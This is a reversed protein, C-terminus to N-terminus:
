TGERSAEVVLLDDVPHLVVQEYGCRHLIGPWEGVSPARFTVFGHVWFAPLGVLYDICVLRGEPKLVRRVAKLAEEQDDLHHVVYRAVAYDFRGLGEATAIDGAEFSVGRAEGERAMTRAKGIREANKDVGVVDFGAEALKFALYGEGTGVDIVRRGSASGLCRVLKQVAAEKAEEGRKKAEDIRTRDEALRRLGPEDVALGGTCSLLLGSDRM